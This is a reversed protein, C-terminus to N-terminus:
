SRVIEEAHGYLIEEHKSSNQFFWLRRIRRFSLTDYRNRDRFSNIEKGQQDYNSVHWRLRNIAFNRAFSRCFTHM